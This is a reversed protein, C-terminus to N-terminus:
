RRWFRFLSKPKEAGLWEVYIMTMDDSSPNAHAEQLKMKLQSHPPVHELEDLASLGDTYALLELKSTPAVEAEMWLPQGGLCGKSTSWGRTGSVPEANPRIEKGDVWLRMRSDGQWFLLLRRKNGSTELSGCVFTTESGHARKETLVSAVLPNVEPPIPLREIYESAEATWDNLQEQLSTGWDAAANSESDISKLWEVLHDGAYKAAVNGFFSQGVGDCVAFRLANDALDVAAYDQGTEDHLRSEMARCYSLVVAVDGAAAKLFPADEQQNLEYTRKNEM